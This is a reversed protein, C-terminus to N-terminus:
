SRSGEHSALFQELAREVHVGRSGKFLVADGPQALSAVLQGAPIPDDFFFAADARLGSRKAADLMYCAAGRLGVLVDIGCEAAYNGVDRHLPEAWRGLELMEGLVAIRRRAPTDRLVALMARVADPNSNYCDNFVLIGQHQFREGRMKGPQINRVRSVLRDPGIGYVGAVAVGALLNSMSHRGTLPSEFRTTGVRFTLGDQTFKVEEARITSQASEGYTVVPGKHVDAFAAVRPDDANLVATGNLPLEEILERKASAIGDISDFSEMHAWGVNTVVGVNPRAIEALARIEAAHNMGMELVAVRAQDDIRLLSLPLGVHNNLNGETKATTFAESLLEAIVDKTTTKGASGTVGIVDGGWEKRAASALTQLAALSNSTKLIPQTAGDAIDTDVVAGVAGKKLVESTYAHGDHNPGRLAFYLDGPRLTRSDVSWGTVQANGGRVGTEATLGLRAAVWALPKNM